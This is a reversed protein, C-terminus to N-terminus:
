PAGSRHAFGTLDKGQFFVNGRTPILYGMITKLATFKGAGNPGILGSICNREVELSCHNIAKVGGFSKNLGVVSLVADQPM